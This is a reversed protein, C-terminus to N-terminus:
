VSSAESSVSKARSRLASSMDFSEPLLGLSSCDELFLKAQGNQSAASVFQEEVATQPSIFEAYNFSLSDHGIPVLFYLIEVGPNSCLKDRCNGGSSRCPIGRCRM